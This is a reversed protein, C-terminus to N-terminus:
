LSGGGLGNTEQLLQRSIRSLQHKHLRDAPGIKDCMNSRSAHTSRKFLALFIASPESLSAPAKGHYRSGSNEAWILFYLTPFITFTLQLFKLQTRTQHSHMFTIDLQPAPMWHIQPETLTRNTEFCCGPCYTSFSNWLILLLCLCSDTPAHTQAHSCVSFSLLSNVSWHRAAECRCVVQSLTIFIQNSRLALVLFFVGNFCDPDLNILM